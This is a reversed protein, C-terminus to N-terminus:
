RVCWRAHPLHAPARRAVALRTAAASSGLHNFDLSYEARDIEGLERLSCHLVCHGNGAPVVGSHRQEVHPRQHRNRRCHGLHQRGHGECWVVAFLQPGGQGAEDGVARRHRELAVHDFAMGRGFDDGVRVGHATVEDDEAGM